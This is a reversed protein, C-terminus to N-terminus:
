VFQQQVAYAVAATRCSVGFKGYIHALHHEVTKKSITLTHAIQPTNAGQALLRLVEIERRTLGGPSRPKFKARERGNGHVLFAVLADYCTADFQMGVRASLSQMLEDAEHHLSERVYANALGLVRGALPIQDGSLQRHYGQGNLWEHHSAAVSALEYLPAVQELVKQTYYAHLCYVDWESKSRQEGKTLIGYPIAVKGIDHVLAACRLSRQEQSDLGLCSGIGVAVEAVQHSHHWTEPTKGDIFDALAECIDETRDQTFAEAQTPPCLALITQTQAEQEFTVWWSTSETLQLFARVLEPDFRTGQREGALTRATSPGGISHVLEMVQSLHLIRAAIPVQASKIGYALSRGDWREWQYRLTEQVYLPFGLRRAFLQAVECHGRMAERIVPGCQTLFSLLKTVRGPLRADLPVNKTFWGLMDQIRSPDVLMFDSRPVQEDDPFFTSIGASCATCGVDKLLAGYFIAEKIERSLQLAEAIQLGIYASKLGHEMHDGFGIGTAFSLACLLDALNRESTKTEAMITKGMSAETFRVRSNRTAQALTSPNESLFCTM